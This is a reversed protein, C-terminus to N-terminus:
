GALVQARCGFPKLFEIMTDADIQVGSSAVRLINDCDELDFNASYGEFQRHIHELLLNAHDPDSVNTVFVEVM